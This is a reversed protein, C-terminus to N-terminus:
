AADAGGDNTDRPAPEAEPPSRQDRLVAYLLVDITQGDKIVAQRMRAELEYGAKELVRASAPNWEFVHAYLRDLAFHAFVWHTLAALAESTIGRGWYPEGLWYGIEASRRYVDDKLEIGIAGVAEGDVAIAFATEPRMSRATRIWVEADATSYPFPFQDRVNRWIRRNNAYRALSRVDRREWSRIECRNLVLRM